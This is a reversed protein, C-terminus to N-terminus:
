LFNLYVYKYLIIGKKINKLQEFEFIFDGQTLENIYRKLVNPTSNSNFNQVFCRQIFSKKLVFEFVSKTLLENQKKFKLTHLFLNQFIYKHKVLLIHYYIMIEDIEQMQFIVFTTLYNNDNHTNCTNSTNEIMLEVIFFFITEKGIKMLQICSKSKVIGVITIGDKFNDLSFSQNLLPLTKTEFEKLLITLNRYENNVPREKIKSLLINLNEKYRDNYIKLLGNNENLISFSYIEIYFSKSDYQILTWNDTYLVNNLWCENFNLLQCKICINSDNFCFFPLSNANARIELNGVLVERYGKITESSKKIRNSKNNYSKLLKDLFVIEYSAFNM